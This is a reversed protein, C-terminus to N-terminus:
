SALEPYLPAWHFGEIARRCVDHKGGPAIVVGFGAHAATGLVSEVCRRAVPESDNMGTAVMAVASDRPYVVWIYGPNMAHAGGAPRMEEPIIPGM